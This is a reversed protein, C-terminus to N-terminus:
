FKKKLVVINKGNIRDYAYETMLNKTVLIGLGGAKINEPDGSIPKSNVLFPNFERAQDILTLVFEKKDANYLLRIFIYGKEEEYGYKVINSILEDGM